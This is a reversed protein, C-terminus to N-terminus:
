PVFQLVGTTFVGPVVPSAPRQPRGSATMAQRGRHRGDGDGSAGRLRHGDRVTGDAAARDRYILLAYKM